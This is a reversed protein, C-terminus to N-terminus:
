HLLRFSDGFQTQQQDFWRGAAETDAFAQDFFADTEGSFCAVFFDPQPSMTVETGSAPDVLFGTELEDARVTVFVETRSNRGLGPLHRQYPSAGPRGLLNRLPIRNEFALTYSPLYARRAMAWRQVKQHPSAGSLGPRKV